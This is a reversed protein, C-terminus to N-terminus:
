AASQGLQEDAMAITIALSPLLPPPPRCIRGNDGLRPWGRLIHWAFNPSTRFPLNPFCVIPHICTLNCYGHLSSCHRYALFPLTFMRTRRVHMVSRSALALDCVFIFPTKFSNFLDAVRFESRFIMDDSDGPAFIRDLSSKCPVAAAGRPSPRSLGDDNNLLPIGLSFSGFSSALM